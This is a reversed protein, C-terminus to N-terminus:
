FLFDAADLNAADFNQLLITGGGHETLDIKVSDSISTITLEDFGSLSFASLDIQDEDNTFDFSEITEMDPVLSSLIM